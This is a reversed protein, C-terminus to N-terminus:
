PLTALFVKPNGGAARPLQESPTGEFRGVFREEGLRQRVVERQAYVFGERWMRSPVLFPNGITRQQADAPVLSWWRPREITSAIAFQLDLSSPGNAKFYLTWTPAVGGERVLGLLKTGDDFDAARAVDVGALLAQEAQAAAVTDGRSVAVNHAIRLQERTRPADLPQPNPWQAFRDRLEWTAFADARV